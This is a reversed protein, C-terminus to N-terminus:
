KKNKGKLLDKMTEAVKSVDDDDSDADYITNDDFDGFFTQENTKGLHEDSILKDILSDTIKISNLYVQYNFFYNSFHLGLSMVLTNISVSKSTLGLTFDDLSKTLKQTKIIMNPNKKDSDINEKVLGKSSSDIENLDKTEEECIPFLKNLDPESCTRLL